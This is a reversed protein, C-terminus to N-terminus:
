TLMRDFSQGVTAQCCGSLASGSYFPSSAGEKSEQDRTKKSGSQGRAGKVRERWKRGGDRETHEHGVEVGVGRSMEISERGREAGGRRKVRRGPTFQEISYTGPFPHRSM